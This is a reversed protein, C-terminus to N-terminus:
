NQAELPLNIYCEYTNRGNQKAAYLATDANRILTEADQGSEPYIAIGISVTIALQYGELLFPSQLTKVLKSSIAYIDDHSRVRPILLVFEDGGWRCLLDSERLCALLRHVVSKLLRDGIAHGLTDNVDKFHDLDLFLVALLTSQAQAETLTKSLNQNFLVRNPLDTLTDHLSQHRIREEEQKEQTVDRFSWVRGTVKDLTLQPHLFYEIV